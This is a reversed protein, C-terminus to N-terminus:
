LVFFLADLLRAVKEPLVDRHLGDLDHDRCENNLKAM